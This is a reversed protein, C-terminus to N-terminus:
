EIAVPAAGPVAFVLVWNGAPMAIRRELTWGNAQAMEKLGEISRLGFGEGGPRARIM